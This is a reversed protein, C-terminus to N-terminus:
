SRFGQTFRDRGVLDQETTIARFGAKECLQRVALGQLNSHEIMVLGGPRLVRKALELVDRVVDLGDIGGYLALGPDFDAVEPDNPVESDPIYPPNAVIMDVSEDALTAGYAVLDAQVVTIEPALEQTNKELYPYALDSVEVASVHAHPVSRALAIGLVGSGACLDLIRLGHAGVAMTQAHHIAREAMSETEPRPVFVGPGVAVEFGLFAATGILHQLPERRSRRSVLLELEELAPAELTFGTHAKALLEGRSIGVVHSVLREADVSPSAVGAQDLRTAVDRLVDLVKM